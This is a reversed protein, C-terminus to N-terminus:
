KDSQHSIRRVAVAILLSISLIVGGVVTTGSWNLTGVQLDRLFIALFIVLLLGVMGSLSEKKENVKNM